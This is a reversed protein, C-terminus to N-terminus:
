VAGGGTTATPCGDMCVVDGNSLTVHVHPVTPEPVSAPHAPQNRASAARAAAIRDPDTWRAM